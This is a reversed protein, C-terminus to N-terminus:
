KELVNQVGFVYARWIIMAYFCVYQNTHLVGQRLNWGKQKKEAIHQYNQIYAGRKSGRRGDRKSNRKGGRKSLEDWGAGRFRCLRLFIVPRLLM